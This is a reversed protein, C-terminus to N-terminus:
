RQKVVKIFERMFYPLDQPRRSTVLNQCVVVQEDVYDAGANKLDDRIGPYCTARRGKLIDASIMLQQGHCIGAVPKGAKDFAKIIDIVMDNLRLKEPASGGPLLLGDYQAPDVKDVTIDAEMKFHYKACIEGPVMAAVDVKFDEELLRYYPYLLESDDCQNGTIILINM